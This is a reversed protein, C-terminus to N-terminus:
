AFHLALITAANFQIEANCNSGLKSYKSKSITYLLRFTSFHLQVHHINFFSNDDQLPAVTFEKLDLSQQDTAM